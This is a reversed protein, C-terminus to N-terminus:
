GHDDRERAAGILGRVPTDWGETLLHEYPVKDASRHTTSPGSQPTPAIAGSRLAAWSRAFLEDMELRLQAYSSGLTADLAPRVEHQVFIDGTDLGRDLQHITVGKPTDDLYSWLNPDAGRNWPLMSIHLNVARTGFLDLVAGDIIHRYGYSVVFDAAAVLPSDASIPEQTALVEDDTERIAAIVRESAPGLVL